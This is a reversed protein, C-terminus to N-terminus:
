RLLSLAANMLQRRVLTKLLYEHDVRTGGLLLHALLYGSSIALVALPSRWAVLM